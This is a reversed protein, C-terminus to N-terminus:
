RRWEGEGAKEGGRGEGWTTLMMLQIDEEEMLDQVVNGVDITDECGWSSGKEEATPTSHPPVCSHGKHGVHVLHLDDGWVDRAVVLQLLELIVQLIHTPM